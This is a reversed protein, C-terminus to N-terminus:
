QAFAPRLLARIETLPITVTTPGMAYSAVDYANYQFILDKESLGFIPSLQFRGDPFWFGGEKLDADPALERQKRFHAEVIATLRPISGPNVIAALKLPEGTAADFNLYTTFSNGHAGGTYSWESYELSIAPPAARSVKVSKSLTWRQQFDKTERRVEEYGAVFHDAYEAPALKLDDRPRSVIADRIAANIKERVDEPGSVLEVYAFEVHVCGDKADGCGPIMREIHRSEFTPLQATAPTLVILLAAILRTM